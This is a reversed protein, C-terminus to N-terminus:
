VRAIYDRLTKRFDDRSFRALAIKAKMRSHDVKGARCYAALKREVTKPARVWALMIMQEVPRGRRRLTAIQTPTYAAM